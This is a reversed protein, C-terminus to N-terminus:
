HSLKTGAFVGAAAGATAVLLTWGSRLVAWAGSSQHQAELLSALTRKLSEDSEMARAIDAMIQNQHTEIVALRTESEAITKEAALIRPFTAEELRDIQKELREVIAGLRGSADNATM